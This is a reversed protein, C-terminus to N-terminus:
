GAFGGIALAGADEVDLEAGAGDGADVAVLEGDIEVLGAPLHHEVREHLLRALM